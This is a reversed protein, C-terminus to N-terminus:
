GNLRSYCFSGHTRRNICHRFQSMDHQLSRRSGIGRSAGTVVTRAEFKMECIMKFFTVREKMVLKTKRNAGNTVQGTSKV